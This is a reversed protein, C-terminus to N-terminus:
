RPRVVQDRLLTKIETIGQQVVGVKEEVRIIREVHPGFLATARELQDLRANATAAWWVITMTQVVLTLILAIPVKKDLVWHQRNGDDNSLM